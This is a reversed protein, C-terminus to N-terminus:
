SQNLPLPCLNNFSRVILGKKTRIEAVRSVGDSGRSLKTIRGLLWLLPPANQDRVLVLDGIKLEGSSAHWKTKQQLQFIYEQSYRRWFHQRLKEIRQFRQIRNINADELSPYPVSMLSRGILFHAPSLFTLDSPDTSLPTLPRSNLIAEIQFLCTSLEEYVLHTLNLVRRLLTKVSKVAAEWIGGFHPSYAPIFNFNINIEALNAQIYINNAKLFRTLENSAGVFTTGNDSYMNQPKGRRSIFRNLAALFAEKTLDTVLELHVAKVAFCIFVCIYAKQLRCGRGKRDAILIPGCFDVGTNLFPFELCTREAPLHGM